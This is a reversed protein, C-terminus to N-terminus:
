DTSVIQKSGKIPTVFVALSERYESNPRCLIQERDVNKLATISLMTKFEIIGNPCESSMLGQKVSLVPREAFQKAEKLM